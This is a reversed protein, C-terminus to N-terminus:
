SSVLSSGSLSIINKQTINLVPSNKTYPLRWISPSEIVLIYNKELKHKLLIKPHVSCIIDGTEDSLTIEEPAMDNPPEKIYGIVLGSVKLMEGDKADRIPMQRESSYEQKKNKLLVHISPLITQTSPFHDSDKKKLPEEKEPTEKENETTKRKKIRSLLDDFM